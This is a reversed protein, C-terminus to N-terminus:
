VISNIYDMLYSAEPPVRMGYRAKLALSVIYAGHSLCKTCICEDDGELTNSKDLHTGCIDCVYNSNEHGDIKCSTDFLMGNEVTEM